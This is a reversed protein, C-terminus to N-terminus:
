KLEVLVIKCVQDGTNQASHSKVPKNARVKATGGKPSADRYTGDPKSLRIKCDTLYISARDGPHSHFNDKQGPKWTAEIVRMQDNEALIKYVDPSAEPAIPADQAMTPLSALLYASIIAIAAAFQRYVCGMNTM